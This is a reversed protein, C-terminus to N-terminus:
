KYKKIIPATNGDTITLTLGERVQVADDSFPKRDQEDNGDIETFSLNVPSTVEVSKDSYYVYDFKWLYHQSETPALEKTSWGLDEPAPEYDSPTSGLEIKVGTVWATGSQAGELRFRISTKLQDYSKNEAYDYTYTIHKWDSTGTFWGLTLFETDTTAGTSSNKRVLEHKFCNFVNWNNPGQVVNDYKVWASFTVKRYLRPSFDPEINFYLQQYNPIRYCKKQGTIHNDPLTEEVFGGTTKSQIWLNRAGESPAEPVDASNTLKYFTERRIETRDDEGKDSEDSFQEGDTVNQQYSESVEIVDLFSLTSLNMQFSDTVRVFNDFENDFTFNNSSDTTQTTFSKFITILINMYDKIYTTIGIFNNQILLEENLDLYTSLSETLEIIKDRYQKSYDPEYDYDASEKIQTFMYLEADNNMLYDSFTNYGKMMDNHYSSVYSNEWLDLFSNYIEPDEAQLIFNELRSRLNENYYYSSLFDKISFIEREKKKINSLFINLYPSLTTYNDVVVRGKYKDQSILQELTAELNLFLLRATDVTPNKRYKDLSAQLSSRNIVTVLVSIDKLLDDNVLLAKYIDDETLYGTTLEYGVFKTLLDQLDIYMHLTSLKLDTVNHLVSNMTYELVDFYREQDLKTPIVDDKSYEAVFKLQRAYVSSSEFMDLVEKLDIQNFNSFTKIKFENLLDMMSKWVSEKYRKRSWYLNNRAKKVVETLNQSTYQYVRPIVLKRHITEDWNMRKMVLVILAVLADFIKIKGTSIKSNRFNFSDDLIGYTSLAEERTLSKDRLMPTRILNENYIMIENLFTVLYSLKKNNDMLDIITDVSIYKTPAPNFDEDLIDEKDARWYPDDDTLDEYAVKKNNKFDPQEDIPTKYFVLNSNEKNKGLYYKHINLGAFQFINRIKLFVENTGKSRILDNMAKYVKRKYTTPFDDFYDLGWSIFGNKLKLEDYTDVDFYKEMKANMYKLISSFVLYWNFFEIDYDQNSFAKTYTVNKYYNLTEYYCKQFLSQDALPLASSNLSTIIERDKAKRAVYPPINYLDQLGRYYKNTETYNKIIANIEFSRADNLTGEVARIYRDALRLSTDTEAEEATLEDKIILGSAYLTLNNLEDIDERNFINFTYKPTFKRLM